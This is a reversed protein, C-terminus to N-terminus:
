TQYDDKIFRLIQIARDTYLNIGEWNPRGLVKQMLFGDEGFWQPLIGGLFFRRKKLVNIAEGICPLSSKLMVQIITCHKDMVHKEATDFQAEFDTGIEHMTIRALQAFDFIRTTMETQGFSPIGATSAILTRSDDFGNYIFPFFNEYVEPVYVVHPKQVFTKFMDVASVRGSASKEREYAEGPMLDIEIATEVHKFMIAARQVHTHNCVAECFLADIGPLKSAIKMTRRFLLGAVPTKRYDPLVLTQGSEYLGKHPASRYLATYGVIRNDGTRALVPIYEAAQFAKVLEEPHYVIKVPYGDGYVDKFLEAVGAADSEKFLDITYGHESM